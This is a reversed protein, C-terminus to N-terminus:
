LTKDGPKWGCATLEGTQLAQLVRITEDASRGVDMPHVLAYQMVGDPDIIYLGRLACGVEENYVEYNRANEGTFDALLPYPLDKLDEEHTRWALHSNRSDTSCGIVEANLEKFKNYYHGFSAIETPCVFTFDFPYFFFVVWKGKYDELSIEKYANDPTLNSSHGGVVAQGKFIPAKKGVLLSM